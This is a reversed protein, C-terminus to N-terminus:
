GFVDGVDGSVTVSEGIYADPNDILREVRAAAVAGTTGVPRGSGNRNRGPHNSMKKLADGRALAVDRAFEAKTIMGNDDRDACTFAGALM